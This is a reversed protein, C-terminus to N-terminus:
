KEAVVMCHVDLRPVSVRLGEPTPTPDLPTRSPVLLFRRLAKDKFTVTIDHIPIIERRIYSSEGGVNQSRGFSSIDNLLHVVTRNGQSYTMAQVITPATVEAPPPEAAAERLALEIIRGLYEHGYRFFSWTIDFPIYIVKGKGYTAEIFAVHNTRDVKGTKPDAAATTLRISSKAGQVPEVLLMRCHVPVSRTLTGPPQAVHRVSLTKQIVPDLSWRHEPPFYLFANHIVKQAWSVQMHRNDFEGVHKANFLDALGFSQRPHAHEDYLSTEYTAVLGGGNRVFRRVTEMEAESMAACNPLFLVKYDELLGQELERDTVLSVPVHRELMAQFAGYVGKVYRGKPDDRGYWLETKESMALGCWPYLKAGKFYGDRESIDKMYHALVDRGPVSHAPVCGNTMMTMVRIFPEEYSLPLWGPVSPAGWMFARKRKCLGALHWNMFSYRAPFAFTGPDTPEWGIEELLGDVCEIIRISSRINGQSRYVWANWSNVVMAADPNAGKIAKNFYLM